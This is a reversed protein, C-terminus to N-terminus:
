LPLSIIYQHPDEARSLDSGLSVQASVSKLSLSKLRTYRPPFFIKIVYTYGYSHAQVTLKGTFDLSLFYVIVIVNLVFLAM